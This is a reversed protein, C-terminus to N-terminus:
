CMFTTGNTWFLLDKVNAIDNTPWFRIIGLAGANLSVEDRASPPIIASM